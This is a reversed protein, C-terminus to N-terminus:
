VTWHFCRSIVIKSQWFKLLIAKVKWLLLHFRVLNSVQLYDSSGLPPRGEPEENVIFSMALTATNCCCSWLVFCSAWWCVQWVLQWTEYHTCLIFTKEFIAGWDWINEIPWSVITFALITLSHMSGCEALRNHAWVALAWWVNPRPSRLYHRSQIWETLADGQQCIKVKRGVLHRLSPSIGPMNQLASQGM